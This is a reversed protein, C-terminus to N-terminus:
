DILDIDMGQTQFFEIIRDQRGSNGPIMMILDNTTEYQVFQPIQSADVGIPHNYFDPQYYAEEDIKNLRFQQLSGSESYQEYYEPDMMVIDYEGSSFQAVFREYLRGPPTFSVFVTENAGEPQLLETLDQALVEEEDFNVEPALVAVHFYGIPRNVWDSIMIGAFILGAIFIVLHWKYYSWLYSIKEGTSEDSNLIERVKTKAM